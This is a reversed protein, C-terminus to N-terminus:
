YVQGVLESESETGDSEVDDVGGSGGQGCGCSASTPLRRDIMEMFAVKSVTCKEPTNPDSSSRTRDLRLAVVEEHSTVAGIIQLTKVSQGIREASEKAATPDNGLAAM